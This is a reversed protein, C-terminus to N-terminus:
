INKNKFIFNFIRKSLILLGHSSFIMILPLFYLSFRGSWDAFTLGVLIISFIIFFMIVNISFMNKPRTMFGFVFGSYFIVNFIIIYFNHIDSYYPRVRALLWFIKLLFIKFFEIFNILIFKFIDYINNQYNNNIFEIELCSIETNACIQNHEFSWGWIIGKTSLSHILDLDIMYSNLLNITPFILIISSCMVLSLSFYKKYKFLFIFVSTLISFLFLIGNPRISVLTIILFIIVPLYNKKFYVIFYTLIITIDIFLIETLIYFNRIQLPFYFLFIAVCIIGSLKCFFKTTIKYLCFASVATLFLQFCVVSVLSIDLYIFPILFLIYGFKSKYDMLSAEGSLILKAQKLYFESDAGYKVGNDLSGAKVYDGIFFYSIISIVWMIYIIFIYLNYNNFKIKNNTM